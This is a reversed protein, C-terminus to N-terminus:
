TETVKKVKRKSKSKQIKPIAILRTTIIVHRRRLKM